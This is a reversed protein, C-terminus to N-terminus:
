TDVLKLQLHLINKNNKAMTSALLKGTSVPSVVSKPRFNNKSGSVPIFKESIVRVTGKPSPKTTIGLTSSLPPCNDSSKRSFKTLSAPATSGTVPAFRGTNSLM